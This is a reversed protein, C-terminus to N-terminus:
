RGLEIGTAVAMSILIRMQRNRDVLPDLPSPPTHFSVECSAQARPTVAESKRMSEYDKRDFEASAEKFFQVVVRYGNECAILAYKTPKSTTKALLQVIFDHTSTANSLVQDITIKTLGVIDTAPDKLNDNFTKNCFGFEEMSRCIKEILAQTKEPQSMGPQIIFFVVLLLVYHRNALDM